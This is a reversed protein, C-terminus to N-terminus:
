VAQNACVKSIGLNDEPKMAKTKNTEIGKNVEAQRMLTTNCYAASSAGVSGVLSNLLLLKNGSAKATLGGTMKRVAGSVILAAGVAAGYGKAMDENSYTCSANKNGYNLGAMYTQNAWQVLLTNFMTPPALLVGILIPINAPLFGSMRLYFPIIQGSEGNTCGSKINLAARVRTVEDASM